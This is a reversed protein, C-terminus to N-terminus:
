WEGCAMVHSAGAEWLITAHFVLDNREKLRALWGKRCPFGEVDFQLILAAKSHGASPSIKVTPKESSALGGPVKGFRRPRGSPTKKMAFWLTVVQFGRAAQGSSNHDPQEQPVGYKTALVTKSFHGSVFDNIIDM